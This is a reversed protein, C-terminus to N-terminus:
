DSGSSWSSVGGPASVKKQETESRWTEHTKNKSHEKHVPKNTADHKHKDVKLDNEVKKKLVSHKNEAVNSSRRTIMRISNTTAISRSAPSNARYM